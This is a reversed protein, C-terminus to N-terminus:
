REPCCGVGWRRRQHPRSNGVRVPNAPLISSESGPGYVNLQQEGFRYAVRARPFEVLEAGLVGCCFSTSREWDSVAIVLHDLTPAPNM